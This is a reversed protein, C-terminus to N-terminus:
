ATADSSEEKPTKINLGRKEMVEKRLKLTSIAAVTAKVVNTPNNAGLSKSLIDSVGAVTFITRMAGGAIVGTGPSAPRILVKSGRFKGNAIHPITKDATLPLTIMNKRAVESAKRIANAVESAKGYGYGFQGKRDGVVVLAGFSFNRGGKVVKSSRNVCIVREELDSGADNTPEPKKKDMRAM